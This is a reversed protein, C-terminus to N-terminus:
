NSHVNILKQILMGCCILNKIETSFNFQITRKLKSQIKQFGISKIYGLSSMRM